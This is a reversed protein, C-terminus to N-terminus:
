QRTYVIKLNRYEGEPGPSFMELTHVNESEITTVDRMTVIGFNPDNLTREMTLARTEPDYSGHSIPSLLTGFNDIWFGEYGGTSNNFGTFGIGEFPMGNATGSYSSQIFRGGLVLENVLTGASVEPEGTPSMLMSTEAAWTGVLGELLQHGESPAALKMMMEMMEAESLDPFANGEYQTETDVRIEVDHEHSHLSGCAFTLAGSGIIALTTKSSLM